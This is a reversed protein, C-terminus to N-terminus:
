RENQSKRLLKEHGDEFRKMATDPLQGISIVPLKLHERVRRALDDALLPYHQNGLMLSFGGAKFVEYAYSKPMMRTIFLPRVGFHRCMALKTQFETQDIYGLQNKIEVGYRLGERQILRDLDHNTETWRKGDVERVNRQLIRFGINAFGSDALLEGHNGVARTVRPDSFEAILDLTQKIQRRPYRHRRPYYFHAKHYGTKEAMFGIRGEKVLENLAKKTIWHFFQRELWIELQRGYYVLRGKEPFYDSLLVGKAEDVKADRPRSVEESEEYLYEDYDDIM